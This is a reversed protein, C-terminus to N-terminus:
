LKIQHCGLSRGTSEKPFTLNMAVSANQHREREAKMKMKFRRSKFAWSNGLPVAICELARSIRKSIMMRKTLVRFIFIPHRIMFCMCQAWNRGLTKARSEENWLKPSSKQPNKLFHNNNSGKVRLLLEIALLNVAQMFETKMKQTFLYFSTDESIFRHFRYFDLYISSRFSHTM